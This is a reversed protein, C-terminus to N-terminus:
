GGGPVYFARRTKWRHGQGCSLELTQSGGHMGAHQLLLVGQHMGDVTYETYQGREVAKTAPAGCEPCAPAPDLERGEYFADAATSLREDNM